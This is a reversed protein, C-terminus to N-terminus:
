WGEQWLFVQKGHLKMVELRGCCAQLSQKLDCSKASAWRRCSLTWLVTAAARCASILTSHTLLCSVGAQPLDAQGAARCGGPLQLLGAPGGPGPSCECTHAGRWVSLRPWAHAAPLSHWAQWTGAPWLHPSCSVLRSQQADAVNPRRTAAIATVVARTLTAPLCGLGHRRVEGAVHDQQAKCLSGGGSFMAQRHSVLAQALTVDGTFEDM